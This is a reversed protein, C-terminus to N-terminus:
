YAMEQKFLNVIIMVGNKCVNVIKNSVNKLTFRSSNNIPKTQGAISSQLVQVAKEFNVNYLSSIDISMQTLTKSLKTGLDDAMGMANALQKFNGVTRTLASEDLGYMDSLTNVFKIGELNAESISDETRHFAVNMLNLNEVYDASKSTFKFMTTLVKDLMKTFAVFGASKLLTNNLNKTGKTTDKVVNKFKNVRTEAKSVSGISNSNINMNTPMSEMVKKLRELKEAYKTLNSGSVKNTFTMSVANEM